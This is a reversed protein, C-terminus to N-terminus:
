GAPKHPAVRVPGPGAPIRDAGWAGSAPGRSLGYAVFFFFLLGTEARLRGLFCWWFGWRFRRRGATVERRRPGEGPRKLTTTPPPPPGRHPRGPDGARAHGCTGFVRAPRDGGLGGGARSSPRNGLHHSGRGLHTELFGSQRHSNAGRPPRGSEKGPLAPLLSRSAGQPGKKKAQYRIRTRDKRPSPTDAPTERKSSRAPKRIAPPSRCLGARDLM